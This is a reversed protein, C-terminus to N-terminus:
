KWVFDIKPDVDTARVANVATSLNPFKGAFRNDMLGYNPTLCQNHWGYWTRRKVLFYKHDYSTIKWRM